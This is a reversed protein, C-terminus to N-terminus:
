AACLEALMREYAAVKKLATERGKEAFYIACQRLTRPNRAHRPVYLGDALIEVVGLQEDGYFLTAYGTALSGQYLRLESAHTEQQATQIDDRKTTPPM